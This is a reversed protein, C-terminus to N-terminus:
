IARVHSWVEADCFPGQKGSLTAASRLIAFRPDFEVVKAIYDFPTEPAPGESRFTLRLQASTGRAGPLQMGTLYSSWLLCNIQDSTAGKRAVSWREVLGRLPLSSPAYRGSVRVGPCLEEPRWQAQEHLPSLGEGEFGPAPGTAARFTLAASMMVKGQDTIVARAGDSSDRTADVTYHVSKYLPARYILLVSALEQDPRDRLSGLTAFAGLIGFVLTEGYPTRRAFEESVHLPSRDHSAESFMALDDPDFRATTAM